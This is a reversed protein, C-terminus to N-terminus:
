FHLVIQTERQGGPFGDTTTTLPFSHMYVTVHPGGCLPALTVTLLMTPFFTDGHALPSQPDEDERSASVEMWNNQFEPVHSYLDHSLFVVTSREGASIPM